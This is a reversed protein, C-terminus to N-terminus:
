GIWATWQRTLPKGLAKLYVGAKGYFILLAEKYIELQVHAPLRFNPGRDVLRGELDTESIGAVTEELERDLAAYWESLRAVSHELASDGARYSFDMTWTKFSDIYARETEGIERCLAGLTPNTGGPTYALDADALQELLQNRLAQYERFLPYHDRMIRNMTNDQQEGAVACERWLRQKAGAAHLSQVVPLGGNKM